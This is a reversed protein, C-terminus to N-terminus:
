DISGSSKEAYCLWCMGEIFDRMLMKVKKPREKRSRLDAASVMPYKLYEDYRDETVFMQRQQWNLEEETKIRTNSRRAPPQTALHRRQQHLHAHQLRHHLRANHLASSLLAVNRRRSQCLAHPRYLQRFLRAALPTDM